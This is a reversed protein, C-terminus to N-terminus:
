VKGEEEQWAAVIHKFKESAAIEAEICGGCALADADRMMQVLPGGYPHMLNRVTLALVVLGLLLWVRRFTVWGVYLVVLLVLFQLLTLALDVVNTM